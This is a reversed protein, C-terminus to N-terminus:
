DGTGFLNNSVNLKKLVCNTGTGDDEWVQYYVSQVMLSFGHADDIGGAAIDVIEQLYKQKGGNSYTTTSQQGKTM